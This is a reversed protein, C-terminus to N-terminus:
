VVQEIVYVLLTFIIGHVLVRDLKNTAVMNTYKYSRPNALIYFILGYLICKLLLKNDFHLKIMSGNFGEVLDSGNSLQDLEDEEPESEGKNNSTDLNATPEVDLVLDDLASKRDESKVDDQFEEKFKKSFELDIETDEQYVSDMDESEVIKNDQYYKDDVSIIPKNNARTAKEYEEEQAIDVNEFHDDLTEPNQFNEAFPDVFGEIM